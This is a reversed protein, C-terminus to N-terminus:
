PVFPEEYGIKTIYLTETTLQERIKRHQKIKCFRTNRWGYM